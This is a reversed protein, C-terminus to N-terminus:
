RYSRCSVRRQTPRRHTVSMSYLAAWNSRAWATRPFSLSPEQLPPRREATRTAPMSSDSEGNGRSALLGAEFVQTQGPTNVPPIIINGPTSNGLSVTLTAHSLSGDTDKITYTFVDTGGGVTHVYSYSGDANLTLLGHAGAVAVGVTAPNSGGAGNGASVGIVTVGGDAGQVDAGSSTTGQGTLM